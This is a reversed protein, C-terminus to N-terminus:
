ARPTATNDVGLCVGRWVGIRSSPPRDVDGTEAGDLGFREGGLGEGHHGEGGLSREESEQGLGVVAASEAVLGCDDGAQRPGQTRVMAGHAHLVVEGLELLGLQDASVLTVVSLPVQVDDGEIAVLLDVTGAAHAM